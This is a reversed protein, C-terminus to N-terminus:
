NLPLINRKQMDLLKSIPVGTQLHVDLLTSKPNQKVYYRVARYIEEEQINCKECYASQDMVYLIGCQKCNELSM